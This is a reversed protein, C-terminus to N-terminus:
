YSWGPPPRFGGLATHTHDEVWFSGQAVYPMSPYKRWELLFWSFNDELLISLLQTSGWHAGAVLTLAPGLSPLLDQPPSNPCIPSSEAKPSSLASLGQPVPVLKLLKDKAWSWLKAYEAKNSFLYYWKGKTWLIAKLQCSCIQSM